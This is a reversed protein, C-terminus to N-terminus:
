LKETRIRQMQEAERLLVDARAVGKTEVGMHLLIAVRRLENEQSQAKQMRRLILWARVWPM